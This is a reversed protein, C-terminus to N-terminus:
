AADADADAKAAENYAELAAHFQSAKIEEWHGDGTASAREPQDALPTHGFGIYAVGDHVFRAGASVVQGRSTHPGYVLDPIGPLPEEVFRIAEMEADLETNKFPVWGAGRYGKKWRGTTPKADGGIAMVDHAGAFTSPYFGGNPSGHRAAFEIARRNFDAVGARNREITAIVEPDTSSAYQPVTTSM